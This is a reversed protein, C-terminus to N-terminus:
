CAQLGLEVTWNREISARKRQTRNSLSFSNVETGWLKESKAKARSKLVAFSVCTFSCWVTSFDRYFDKLSDIDRQIKNSCIKLLRVVFSM